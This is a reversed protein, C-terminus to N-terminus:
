WLIFLYSNNQDRFLSVITCAYTRLLDYNCNKTNILHFIIINQECGHITVNKMLKGRVVQFYLAFNESRKRFTGVYHDYFIQCSM